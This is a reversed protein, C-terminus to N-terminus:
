QRMSLTIFNIMDNSLMQTTNKIATNENKITDSHISAVEYDNNKEFTKQIIKKNDINTLKLSVQVSLNYRTIKGTKDKIKNTKNKQLTIEAEYKNKSDINSILYIDNKIAYAIRPEGITNIKKIYIINNSKQNIKKFGCSAILLSLTLIFIIKNYNKM